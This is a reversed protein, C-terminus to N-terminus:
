LYIVYGAKLSSEDKEITSVESIFKSGEPMMAHRDAHIDHCCYTSTCMYIYINLMHTRHTYIYINYIPVSIFYLM